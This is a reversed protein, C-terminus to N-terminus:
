RNATNDMMGMCGRMMGMDPGGAAGPPMMGPSMPMGSNAAGPMAEQMPKTTPAAPATADAAGPHHEQTGTAEQATVAAAGIMTALGTALFLKSLSM